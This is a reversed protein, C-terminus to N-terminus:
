TFDGGPFYTVQVALHEQKVDHRGRRSEPVPAAAPAQHLLLFLVLLFRCVRTCACQCTRYPRRYRFCICSPPATVFPHACTVHAPHRTAALFFRRFRTFITRKKSCPAGQHYLPTRSRPTHNHKSSTSDRLQPASLGTIKRAHSARVFWGCHSSLFSGYYSRSPPSTRRRRKASREM